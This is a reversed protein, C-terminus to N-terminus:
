CSTRAGPGTTGVSRAKLDSKHLTSTSISYSPWLMWCVFGVKSAFLHAVILNLM